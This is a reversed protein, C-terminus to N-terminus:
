ARLSPLLASDLEPNTVLLPHPWATAPKATDAERRVDNCGYRHSQLHSRLDLANPHVSTHEREKTRLGRALRTPGDESETNQDRFRLGSTHSRIKVHRRQPWRSRPSTPPLHSQSVRLDEPVITAPCSKVNRAVFSIKSLYPTAVRERIKNM